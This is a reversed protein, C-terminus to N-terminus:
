LFERWREGFRNYLYGLGLLAVALCFLSVAQALSDMRSLDVLVIHALTGALVLLGLWRFVRERLLLGAGFVALGFVAWGAAIPLWRRADTDLWLTLQYWTCGVALAALLGELVRAGTEPVGRLQWRVLRQWAVLVLCLAWGEFYLLCALTVLGVGGVVYAGVTARGLPEGRRRAAEALALYVVGVGLPWRWYHTQDLGLWLSSTLLFFASNNLSVFAARRAPPLAEARALFAAATFLLWYVFLFATEIWFNGGSGAGGPWGPWGRVDRWFAYSGFTALLSAFPFVQWLHRGLLFVAGATLVVNSVLTFGAVGENIATTYYALLIAVTALTESSRRDALSVMFAAWGLLLAGALVPSGIVRLNPFHHAAYTVYYVASLGGALLVGAYRRLNESERAQRSRELWAGVATLAGAGLYLLGVKSAPGLHPVVSLYLYRGFVAFFTLLVVIGVRTFWTSGLQVELSGKPPLPPPAAPSAGASALAPLPPPLATTATAPLPSSAAAPEPADFRGLRTELGALRDTLLRQEARIAALEQRDADNM